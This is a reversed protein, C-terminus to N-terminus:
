GRRVYASVAIEDLEKQVQVSIDYEYELRRKQKLKDLVQCQRKAEILKRQCEKVQMLSLEKRKKQELIRGKLFQIAESRHVLRYPELKGMFFDRQWQQLKDQLIELERKQQQYHEQARFLEAKRYEEMLRKYRLVKELSFRFRKL